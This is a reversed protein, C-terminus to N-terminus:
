IARLILTLQGAADRSWGEILRWADDGLDVANSTDADVVLAVVEAAVAHLVDTIYDQQTRFIRELGDGQDEDALVALIRAAGKLSVPSYGDDTVSGV